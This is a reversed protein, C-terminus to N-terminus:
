NFSTQSVTAPNCLLSLPAQLLLVQQLPLDIQPVRPIVGGLFDWPECTPLWQELVGFKIEQIQFYLVIQFQYATIIVLLECCCVKLQERGCRGGTDSGGHAENGTQLTVTGNSSFRFEQSRGCVSLVVYSLPVM